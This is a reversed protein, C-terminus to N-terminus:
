YRYQQPRISNCHQRHDNQPHIARALVPQYTYAIACDVQLVYQDGGEEYSFVHGRECESQKRPSPVSECAARVGADAGDPAACYSSTAFEPCKPRECTCGGCFFGLENQIYNCTYKTSDMAILEDCTAFRSRAENLPVV